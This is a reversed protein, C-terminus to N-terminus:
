DNYVRIHKLDGQIGLKAGGVMDVTLLYGRQKNAHLDSLKFTPMMQAVMYCWDRHFVLGNKFAETPSLQRMADSNDELIQFDSRVFPRQGGILPLDQGVFDSSSNKTDGLFDNYYEPDLLVYRDGTPWKSKSALARDKMLEAFNYATIGSRVHEPDSSSPAVLGYIYENIQLEVGKLLAARIASQGSANGLQSQIDILNDLEFSASFIQDAKIGVRKTKLKESDITTHNGSADIQKRSGKANEVMSVYVTDGHNQLDSDYTTNILNPLIANEKLEPVFLPSWFEQIQQEVEKIKTASM